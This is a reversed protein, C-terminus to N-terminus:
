GGPRREGSQCGALSRPSGHASHLEEFLLSTLGDWLEAMSLPPNRRRRSRAPSRKEEGKPTSGPEACHIPPM